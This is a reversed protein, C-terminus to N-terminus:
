EGIPRNLLDGYMSLFRSEPILVPMAVGTDTLRQWLQQAEVRGLPPFTFRWAPLKVSRRQYRYPMGTKQLDQQLLEANEDQYLRGLGILYTTANVEIINVEMGKVQWAQAALDAASRTDYIMADDFAHLTVEEQSNLTVPALGLAFLRQTLAEVAPRTVMRRTVVRWKETVQEAGAQVPLPMHVVKHVGVVAPQQWFFWALAALLFITLYKM